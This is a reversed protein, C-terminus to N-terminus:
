QGGWTRMLERSLGELDPFVTTEVIGLTKLDDLIDVIGAELM